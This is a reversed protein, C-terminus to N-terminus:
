QSNLPDYTLQYPPKLIIERESGGDLPVEFLRTRSAESLQVLLRKGSPDVAASDGHRVLAPTGGDVPQAWIAGEAAIYLTQGDPAAAMSAIEGRAFTIRRADMRGTAPSAFAITRPP